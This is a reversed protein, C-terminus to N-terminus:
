LLENSQQATSSKAAPTENTFFAARYAHSPTGPDRCLESTQPQKIRGDVVLVQRYVNFKLLLTMRVVIDPAISDLIVFLDKCCTCTSVSAQECEINHQKERM